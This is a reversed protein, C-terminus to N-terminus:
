SDEQLKESNEDEKKSINVKKMQAKQMAEEDFSEKLKIVGNKYLPLVPNSNLKSAFELDKELGLEKLHKGSGSVSFMKMIKESSPIKGLFHIALSCVAIEPDGIIFNNDKVLLGTIIEGACVADELAFDGSKGSCIIMLDGETNYLENITRKLNTFSALMCNTAYKSKLMSTTGNTTSVVISKEKVVDETYELPSNGLNFGNVKLGNREGGLLSNGTGKAIRAATSVNDVPIIEKAGSALAVGITTTARLVDVIVINKDKLSLEDNVFSNSLFVKISRM